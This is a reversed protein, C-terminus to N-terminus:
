KKKVSETTKVTKRDRMYEDKGAEYEGYIGAQSEDYYELILIMRLVM